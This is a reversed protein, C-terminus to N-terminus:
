YKVFPISELRPSELILVYSGPSLETLDVEAREGLLVDIAVIRGTADMIRYPCRVNDPVVLMSREQAPNPYMRPRAMRDTSSIGTTISGELWIGNHLLNVVGQADTLVSNYILLVPWHIGPVHYAIIDSEMHSFFAGELYRDKTITTEVRLAGTFLGEPTMVDCETMASGQITGNISQGSLQDAGAYTDSWVLGAQCPFPMDEKQDSLVFEAEDWVGLLTLGTSASAYFRGNGDPGAWGDCVEVDATPVIGSCWEPGPSAHFTVSSTPGYPENDSHDYFPVMGPLPPVDQVSGFYRIFQDGAVPATNNQDLVVQGLVPGMSIAALMLSCSRYM